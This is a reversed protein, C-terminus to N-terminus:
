ITLYEKYKKGRKDSDDAASVNVVSGTFYPAVLMLKKNSWIRPQRFVPDPFLLEKIKFFMKLMKNEKNQRNQRLM